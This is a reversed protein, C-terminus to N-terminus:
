VLCVSVLLTMCGHCHLLWTTERVQEVTLMLRPCGCLPCWLRPLGAPPFSSPMFPGLGYTRRM